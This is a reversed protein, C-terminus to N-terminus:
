GQLLGVHARLEALENMLQQVLVEHNRLELLALGYGYAFAYPASHKEVTKEIDDAKM